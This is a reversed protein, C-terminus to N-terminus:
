KSAETAWEPFPPLDAVPVGLSLSALVGASTGAKGALPFTLGAGAPLM